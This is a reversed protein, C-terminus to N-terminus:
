HVTLRSKSTRKYLEPYDLLPFHEKVADTLVATERWRAISAVKAGHIHLEDKDAIADKIINEIEKKRADLSKMQDKINSLEALLENALNADAAEVAKKNSKTAKPKGTILKDKAEAILEDHNM